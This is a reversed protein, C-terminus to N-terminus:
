KGQFDIRFTQLNDTSESFGIFLWVGATEFSHVGYKSEIHKYRKDKEMAKTSPTKLFDGGYLVISGRFTGKPAYKYKEKELSFVMGDIVSSNKPDIVVRIGLTDYTLITNRM